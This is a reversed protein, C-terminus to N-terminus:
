PCGPEFGPEPMPKPLRNDTRGVDGRSGDLLAPTVRPTVGEPRHAGLPGWGSPCSAWSSPKLPQAEVWEQVEEPMGSAPDRDGFPAPHAPPAFAHGQDDRRRPRAAFIRWRRASSISAARPRCSVSSRGPSLGLQSTLTAGRRRRRRDPTSMPRPPHLRSTAATRPTMATVDPQTSQLGVLFLWLSVASRIRARRSQVLSSSRAQAGHALVLGARGAELGLPASLHLRSLLLRELRHGIGCKLAALGPGVGRGSGAEDPALALLADTLM